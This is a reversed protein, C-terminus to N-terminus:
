EEIKSNIEDQVIVAIHGNALQIELPQGLHVSRADTVISGFPVTRTISYGRKLVANPDMANLVAQAARLRDNMRVTLLDILAKLNNRLIGVKVKHASVLKEPSQHLLRTRTQELRSQRERVQVDLGRRLRQVLQDLHLKKDQVKRGPHVLLRNYQRMRDKCRQLTNRMARHSREALDACRSLLESKIPIVIEAAASPTPARLDAVFDSISYDTEHGVASVIPIRSAFVARAVRESNFPALDELSGGGRALILVDNRELRNALQIAAVINEISEAGQVRVPYIDVAVNPFRRCAVRLIDQVVSGTPSTIIGLREPLFPLPLKYEDSFLGEDLLKQKLQEFAVQLAGVGLPEAYELIIQYSGRPEYVSVRGLGVLSIGDDLHFKLQRLQGRFMVASIQAQKDKLTFYAHGSSPVKMNSIEGSIWVMPYHDELLRKINATLESVSYIKRGPLM